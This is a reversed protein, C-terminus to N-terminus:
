DQDITKVVILTVGNFYSRMSLSPTKFLVWQTGDRLEQKNIWFSFFLVNNVAKAPFQINYLNLRHRLVSVCLVDVKLSFHYLICSSYIIYLFYNSIIHVFTNTCFMPPLSQTEVWFHKPFGSAFDYRSCHLHWKNNLKYISKHKKQLHWRNSNEYISKATVTELFNKFFTDKSSSFKIFSPLDLTSYCLVSHLTSACLQKLDM